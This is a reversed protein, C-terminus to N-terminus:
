KVNMPKLFYQSAKVCARKTKGPENFCLAGDVKHEVNEVILQDVPILTPGYTGLIVLAYTGESESSENISNSIPLLLNIMIVSVLVALVTLRITIRVARGLLRIMKSATDILKSKIRKLM